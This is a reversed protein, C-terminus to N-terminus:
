ISSFVLIAGIINTVFIIVLIQSTTELYGSSKSTSNQIMGFIREVDDQTSEYDDRFNNVEERLNTINSNNFDINENVRKLEEIIEELGLIIAKEYITTNENEVKPFVEHENKDSM